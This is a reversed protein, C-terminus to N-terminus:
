ARCSSSATFSSSDRREASLEGRAKGAAVALCALATLSAPSRRPRPSASRLVPWRACCPHRKRARDDLDARERGVRTSSTSPKCYRLAALTDPTEGSQSIFLALGGKSRPRATASNPPSMSKSRCARSGSSGTNPSSGPMSRPAAPPSPIRHIDQLRVAPEGAAQRARDAMDVYATLTHAVVEPQEHIEKAM